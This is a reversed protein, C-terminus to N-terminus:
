VADMPLLHVDCVGRLTRKTHVQVAKYTLEPQGGPHGTDLEVFRM